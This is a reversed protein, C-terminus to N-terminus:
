KKVSLRFRTVEAEEKRLGLGLGGLAAWFTDVDEPYFAFDMPYAEDAETEPLVIAGVIGYQELYAAFDQLQAAPSRFHQGSAGAEEPKVAAHAQRKAADEVFLRYITSTEQLTDLTLGFQALVQDFLQKRLLHPDAEPVIIDLTYLDEELAEQDEEDIQYRRWGLDMAERIMGSISTNILTLRRGKLGKGLGQISLTPMGELAEILSFAEKESGSRAFIDSNLPDFGIRDQKQAVRVEEGSFFAGLTNAELDEPASISRVKGSPDILVAHPIIRHPFYAALLGVEDRVHQFTGPRKAVFREVRSAAEYSVAWIQLQDAFQEQLRDLKEHGAVCPACWTAWFDILLWKGSSNPFKLTPSTQHILQAELPGPLQAGVPVAGGEISGAEPHHQARSTHASASTLLVVLSSYLLFKLTKRATM